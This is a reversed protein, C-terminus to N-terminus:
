LSDAIIGPPLNLQISTHLSVCRKQRYLFVLFASLVLLGLSAGVVAGTVVGTRRASQPMEEGTASSTQAAPVAEAASSSSATEQVPSTNSTRVISVSSTTATGRGTASSSTATPSSASLPTTTTSAASPTIITTSTLTETFVTIMVTKTSLLESAIRSASSAIAASSAAAYNWTESEEQPSVLAWRPISFTKQDKIKDPVSGIAPDSCGNLWSSINQAHKIPAVDSICAEFLAFAVSSCCCSDPNGTTCSFVTTPLSTNFMSFDQCIGIMREYVRCPTDGDDSTAWNVAVGSCTTNGTSM